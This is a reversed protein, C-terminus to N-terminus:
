CAHCQGPKDVSEWVPLTEKELYGEGDVTHGLDCSMSVSSMSQQSEDLQNMTAVALITPDKHEKMAELVRKDLKTLRSTALSLLNSASARTRFCSPRLSNHMILNHGSGYESDFPAIDVNGVTSGSCNARAVAIVDGFSKICTKMPERSAAM